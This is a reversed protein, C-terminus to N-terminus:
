GGTIANTILMAGVGVELSVVAWFLAERSTVVRALRKFADTLEAHLTCLARVPALFERTFTRATM